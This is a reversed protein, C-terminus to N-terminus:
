PEDKVGLLTLDFVEPTTSRLEKGGTTYLTIDSKM